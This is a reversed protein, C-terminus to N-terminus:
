LRTAQLTDVCRFTLSIRESEVKPSLAISHLWHAQMEGQMVLVSGSALIIQLRQGTTRHKLAFRREAGLSLCAIPARPKLERENDSHWAMGESGNHYLNALCSNFGLSPSNVQEAPRSVGEPAIPHLSHEVLEKLQLLDSTWPLAVKETCSYRYRYPADGHWAVHRRSVVPRGAIILSDPQWALGTEPNRLKQMWINAEKPTLIGEFYYLEGDCPLLNEPRQQWEPFLSMAGSMAGSIAGIMPSSINSPM